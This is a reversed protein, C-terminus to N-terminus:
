FTRSVTFSAFDRDLLSQKYSYQIVGPAAGPVQETAPGAPGYYHTYALGFKWVDQYLGDIGIGVNGGGATGWAEGLARSRSGTPTYALTVPVSFNLGPLVQNYTPAFRMQLSAANRTSNPDVATCNIQCSLVRNWAIEAMLNAEQWLATRPVAWLTSLNVHATRGVAYAPNSSNNNPAVTGAPALASIDSGQTSALDMNTRVSAEGAWNM